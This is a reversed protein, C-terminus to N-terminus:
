VSGAQGPASRGLNRVVEAAVDRLKRNHTSSIRQMIAFADGPGVRYRECLVAKAREIEPSRGLKSGLRAV